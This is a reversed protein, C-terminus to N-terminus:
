DSMQPRHRVVRSQSAAPIMTVTLPVATVLILLDFQEWLTILKISLIVMEIAGSIVTTKLLISVEIRRYITKM